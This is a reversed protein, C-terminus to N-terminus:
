ALLPVGARRRGEINGAPPHLAHLRDMDAAVLLEALFGHPGTEQPDRKLRYFFSINAEMWSQRWHYCGHSLLDILPLSGSGGTIDQFPKHLDLIPSGVVSPDVDLDPPCSSRGGMHVGCRWGKLLQSMEVGAVKWSM